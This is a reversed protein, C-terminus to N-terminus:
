ESSTPRPCQPAPARAGASDFILTGDLREVRVSMDAGLMDKVSRDLGRLRAEQDRPIRRWRSLAVRFLLTRTDHHYSFESSTSTPMAVRPWYKLQVVQAEHLAGTSRVLDRLLRLQTWPEVNPM